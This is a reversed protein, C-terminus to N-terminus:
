ASAPVKILSNVVETLNRVKATIQDLRQQDQEIQQQSEQDVLQQSTVFLSVKSEFETLADTLPTFDMM